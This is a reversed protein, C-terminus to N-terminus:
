RTRRDIENEWLRRAERVERRHRREELAVTLVLLACILALAIWMATAFTM